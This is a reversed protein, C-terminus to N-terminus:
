SGMVEALMPRLPNISLCVLESIAERLTEPLPGDPLGSITIQELRHITEISMLVPALEIRTQPTLKYGTM